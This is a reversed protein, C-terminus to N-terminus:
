IRSFLFCMLYLMFSAITHIFVAISFRKFKDYFWNVFFSLGIYYVAPVGTHISAFFLSCIIYAWRKSYSQLSNFLILFVGAECAINRLIMLMSQIYGNKSTFQIVEPPFEKAFEVCLWATVSVYISMAVLVKLFIKTRFVGINKEIWEKYSEKYANDICKRQNIIMLYASISAAYMFFRILQTNFFIDTGIGLFINIIAVIFVDGKTYSYEESQGKSMM